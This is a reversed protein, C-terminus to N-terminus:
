YTQATSYSADIPVWRLWSELSIKFSKPMDKCPISGDNDWWFQCQPDPDHPMNPNVDMLGVTADSQSPNYSAATSSNTYQNVSGYPVASAHQTGLLVAVGTFINPLFSTSKM